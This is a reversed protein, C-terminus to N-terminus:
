PMKRVEAENLTLCYVVKDAAPGYSATAPCEILQSIREQCHPIGTHTWIQAPQIQSCIWSPLMRAQCPNMVYGSDPLVHAPPLPVPDFIMIHLPLWGPAIPGTAFRGAFFPVQNGNRRVPPMHKQAFTFPHPLHCIGPHAGGDMRKLMTLNRRQRTFSLDMQSQQQRRTSFERRINIPNGNQVGRSYESFLRPFHNLANSPPRDAQGSRLRLAAVASIKAVSPSPPGDGEM